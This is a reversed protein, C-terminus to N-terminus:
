IVSSAPPDDVTETEVSKKKVKAKPKAPLLAPKAAVILELEERVRENMKKVLDAKQSLISVQNSVKEAEQRCYVVTERIHEILGCIYGNVEDCQKALETLYPGFQELEQAAQDYQQKVVNAPWNHDIAATDNLTEKNISGVLKAMEQEIENVTERTDAWPHLHHPQKM